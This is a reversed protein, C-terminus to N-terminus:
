AGEEDEAEFGEKEAKLLLGLPEVVRPLWALDALNVSMLDMAVAISGNSVIDMEPLKPYRTSFHTLITRYAGSKTAVGVAEGTTSHRKKYAENELEDEFTAEHVLLTADRAAEVVSECPRTDGSFVVKWPEAGEEPGRGELLLGYSNHIHDVDFPRFTTLGLTQKVEQLAGAVSSPLPRTLGEQLPTPGAHSYGRNRKQSYCDAPVFIFAIPVVCSYSQLVEFLALPGMVLLPGAGARARLQLLPVLGGHHDAHMHSIWVAQLLLVRQFADKPGYRREMQGVSDEGCDVMVGGRGFFDLYTGSVNRYKSPQSSATGLFTVELTDRSFRCKGAQREGEAEAELAQALRAMEESWDTRFAEAVQASCVRGGADGSDPGQKPQPMLHYRLLSTAPCLLAQVAEPSLHLPITTATSHTNSKTNAAASNTNTTTSPQTTTTAASTTPTKSAEPLSSGNAAGEAPRETEQASTTADPAVVTTPADAAAAPMSM